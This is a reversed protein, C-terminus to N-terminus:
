ILSGGRGQARTCVCVCVGLRMSGVRVREGWFVTALPLIRNLAKFEAETGPEGDPSLGERRGPMRGQRGAGPNFGQRRGGEGGNTRQVVM